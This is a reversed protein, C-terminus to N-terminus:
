PAFTAGPLCLNRGVVVPTSFIGILQNPQVEMYQVDCAVHGATTTGLPTYGTTTFRDSRRRVMHRGDESFGVNKVDYIPTHTVRWKAVSDVPIFYTHTGFSRREYSHNRQYYGGYFVFPTEIAQVTSDRGVSLVVERRAPSYALSFSSTVRGSFTPYQEVCDTWETGSTLWAVCRNVSPMLNIRPGQITTLVQGNMKIEFLEDYRSNAGTSKIVTFVLEGDHSHAAKSANTANDEPASTTGFNWQANRYAWAVGNTSRTSRTRHQPSLGASPEVYLPETTGLWGAGRQAFVAGTSDQWVPNGCLGAGPREAAIRLSEYANVMMVGGFHAEDFYPGNIVKRGGRAAGDIIAQRVQQATLRPDLSWVLGAIGSVMPAAFSTGSVSEPLTSNSMGGVNRGPATVDVLQGWNSGKNIGGPNFIARTYSGLYDGMGPTTQEVAGVVLVRNPHSESALAYGNFFANVGQNGASIVILPDASFPLALTLTTALARGMSRAQASDARINMPARRQGQADTYRAGRSLNVVRAGSTMAKAVAAYTGSLGFIGGGTRALNYHRLDVDWIVGAMAEANDGRAALVSSVMAGHLTAPSWQYGTNTTKVDPNSYFGDDVVAVAVSSDGTTCGWAWPASIAELGWNLGATSDPNLNWDNPQWGTTADNPRVYEAGYDETEVYEPGAYAVQPLVRLRNLAEHLNSPTGNDTVRVFYIGDGGPFRRGGIVRGNTRNVAVLRDEATADPHFMILVIDRLFAGSDLTDGYVIKSATYISEPVTDPAVIPVHPEGVYRTFVFVTFGFRDVTRPVRWEWRKAASVQQPQLIESYAHYPQSAASCNCVGDPNSVTVTGTDGATKYATVSPGSHFFVKMFAQTTGDVTGIATTRLNQVTVDTSFLEAITDSVVNTNALKVQSAGYIVLSPGGPTSTAGNQERCDLSGNGVSVTCDLRAITWGADVPLRPSPSQISPDPATADRCNAALIVLAATAILHKRNM